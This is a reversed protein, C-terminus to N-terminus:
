LSPRVATLQVVALMCNTAYISTQSNSGFWRHCKRQVEFLLYQAVPMDCIGFIYYDLVQMVCVHLVFM